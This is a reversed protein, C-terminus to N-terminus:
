APRAERLLQLPTFTNYNYFSLLTGEATITPTNLWAMGEATITPTNLWATGEATITPTDLCPTGEAAITPTDLRRATSM